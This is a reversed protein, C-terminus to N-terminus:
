RALMRALPRSAGALAFRGASARKAGRSPRLRAAIAARLAPDTAVQFELEDLYPALEVSRLPRRVDPRLLARLTAHVREPEHEPFFSEIRERPTPASPRRSMARIGRAPANRPLARDLLAGAEVIGAGMTAHDWGAPARATALLAEKFVGAVGAIGFQQALV